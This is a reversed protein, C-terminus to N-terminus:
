LTILSLNVHFQTQDPASTNFIYTSGHAELVFADATQSEENLHDEDALIRPLVPRGGNLPQWTVADDSEYSYIETPLFSGADVSRHVLLFYKSGSKFLQPGGTSGPLSIVPNSLHKLWTVGDSSTALGIKWVEGIKRAEYLLKWSTPGEKLVCPNVTYNADWNESGSSAIVAPAVLTFNIGDLSTLYDIQSEGMPSAWMKFVLGDKMVFSRMYGALVMRSFYNWRIGDQSEAYSIGFVGPSDEVTFWAKFVVPQSLIIPSDDYIVSAELLVNTKPKSLVEGFRVIGPRNLGGRFFSKTIALKM